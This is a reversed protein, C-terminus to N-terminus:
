VGAERLVREPEVSWAAAAQERTLGLLQSVALWEIPSKLDYKTQSRSTFVIPAHLKRCRALFQSLQSLNRARLAFKQTLILPVLPLEFAKGGEAVARILGDDKWYKPVLCPNVFDVDRSKAAARLLEGNLGEAVVLEGTKRGPVTNKNLVIVKASYAQAFGLERATSLLSSNAVNLDYFKM